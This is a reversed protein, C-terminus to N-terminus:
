LPYGLKVTLDDYYIKGQKSYIYIKVLDTPSKIPPFQLSASFLEWEAPNKKSKLPLYSFGIPTGNKTQSAITFIAVNNTDQSYIWLDIHAYIDDDIPLQRANISLTPGYIHKEDVFASHKGGHAMDITINDDNGWKNNEFDNTYVLENYYTLDSLASNYFIGEYNKDTKLFINWYRGRSMSDHSLIFHIYQYQQVLNLGMCLTCSLVITGLRIASTLSQLFLALLLAFVTYFDIFIRMGYSDGFYWNWWCSLVYTFSIFFLFSAFFRFLDKKVVTFLGGLTAILMLPTYIFLGKRYSFLVSWFHPRAFYFRENTYSWALFSGTEKHWILMQLAIFFFSVLLIIMFNKPSFINQILKKTDNYSGAIFPILALCFINTPRVLIVLSLTIAIWILYKLNPTATFKKTYYLFAAVLAFSYVHSMSPEITGYYFLNTGFLVVTLTFYIVWDPLKFELLLKRTYVLGLLLYFLGGIGVGLQFLLSFGDLSYGSLFSLFYALLFFPMLLVSVGIFYKDLMKGDKESYCANLNGNFHELKKYDFNHYIFICPLYVYYGVGDSKIITKSNESNWENVGAYTLCVLSVAIFYILPLRKM